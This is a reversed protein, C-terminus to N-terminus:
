FLHRGKNRNQTFTKRYQSTVPPYVTPQQGLWLYIAETFLLATDIAPTRANTTPMTAAGWLEAATLAPAVHLFAPIWLTLLPRVKVQMLCPLFNTHFLPTTTLALGAALGDGLAAGAGTTEGVGAGVKVGGTRGVDHASRTEFDSPM